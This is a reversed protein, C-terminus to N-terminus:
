RYEDLRRKITKVPRCRMIPEVIRIECESHARFAGEVLRNQPLPKTKPHMTGSIM